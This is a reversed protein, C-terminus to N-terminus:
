LVLEMTILTLDDCFCLIYWITKGKRALYCCFDEIQAITNMLDRRCLIQFVSLPKTDDLHHFVSKLILLAHIKPEFGFWALINGFFFFVM